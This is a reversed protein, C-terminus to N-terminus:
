PRVRNGHNREELGKFPTERKVCDVVVSRRIEKGFARFCRRAPM